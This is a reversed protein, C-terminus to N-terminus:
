DKKKVLKKVKEASEYCYTNDNNMQKDKINSLSEKKEQEDIDKSSNTLSSSKVEELKLKTIRKILADIRKEINEKDKYIDKTNVDIANEGLEGNLKEFSKKKVENVKNSYLVAGVSGVLFTSIISVVSASSTALLNTVHSFFMTVFGSIVVSALNMTKRYLRDISEVYNDLLHNKLTLIDLEDYANNLECKIDDLKYVSNTDMTKSKIDYIKSASELATAASLINKKVNELIKNRNILNNKLVEYKSEEEYKEDETIAHCNNNIKEKVNTKKDIKDHIIKGIGLSAIVCGTSISSLAINSTIYFVRSLLGVGISLPIYPIFSLCFRIKVRYDRKSCNAIRAKYDYKKILKENNTIEEDLEKIINNYNVLNM